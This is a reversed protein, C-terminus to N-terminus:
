AIRLSFGRRDHFDPRNVPHHVAFYHLGGDVAEIVASLGVELPLDPWAGARLRVIVAAQSESRTTTMLPVVGDIVARKVRYDSFSYTAYGGCPSWNFEHYGRASPEAVFAEFCTHQWLGDARYLHSYVPLVCDSLAGKLDYRCEVAGNSFCTVTAEVTIQLPVRPVKPHAILPTTLHARIPNM